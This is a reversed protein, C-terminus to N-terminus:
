LCTCAGCTSNNRMCFKTCFSGTAGKFGIGQMLACRHCHKLHLATLQQLQLLHLLGDDGVNCGKLGLWQLQPLAAALSPMGGDSVRTYSLDLHRLPFAPSGMTGSVAWSTSACGINSSSSVAVSAAAANAAATETAGGGSGPDTGGCTGSESSSRGTRSGLAKNFAALTSNTVKYCSHLVLTQLSPLLALFGWNGGLMNCGASLLLLLLLAAWFANWCTLPVACQQLCMTVSCDNLFVGNLEWQTLFVQLPLWRFGYLSGHRRHQSRYMVAACCPKCTCGRTTCFLMGSLDLERVSPWAPQLTTMHYGETAMLQRLQQCSHGCTSSHGRGPASVDALNCVALSDASLLALLERPKLRSNHGLSLRGLRLPRQQPLQVVSNSSGDDPACGWEGSVQISTLLRCTQLLLIFGDATFSTPEQVNISTLQQLQQTGALFCACDWDMNINQLILSSMHPFTCLPQDDYLELDQETICVTGVTQRWIQRLAHCACSLHNRDATSLNELVKVLCEETLCLINRDQAAQETKTPAAAAAAGAVAAM